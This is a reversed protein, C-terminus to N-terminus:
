EVLAFRGDQVRMIVAESVVDGYEDLSLTGSLTHFNRIALLAKPLGDRTGQCHRLAEALIFVAAYSREAAFTPRNGFRIFFSHSFSDLAPTTKGMLSPVSILMDEVQQGGHRLLAESCAWETTLLRTRPLLTAVHQALSATDRASAIILLAEVSQDALERLGAGNADPSGPDLAVQQVLTGGLKQLHATFAEAYPLSYEANRKDCVVAVRALGLALVHEALLAAGQDSLPSNRFFHDPLGALLPTSTTPSFLVTRTQNVLPLAAMSQSSTMHGVIAVVGADILAKDAVLAGEPTNLDDLALLRLPRALVGGAANIHEVALQAGNRGQVGLDSYRGTLQGSFGILIPGQRWTRLAEWGLLGLALLGALTLGLVLLRLARISASKWSMFGDEM